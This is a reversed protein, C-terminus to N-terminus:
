IVAAGVVCLWTRPWRSLGQRVQVTVAVSVIAEVEGIEEADLRAQAIEDLGWPSETIMWGGIAPLGGVLDRFARCLDEYEIGNPCGGVFAIGVPVLDSLRHWVTELRSLTTEAADFEALADNMDM